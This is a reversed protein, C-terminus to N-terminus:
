RCIINSVVIQRLHIFYNKISETIAIILTDVFKEKKIRISIFSMSIVIRSRHVFYKQNSFCKFFKFYM